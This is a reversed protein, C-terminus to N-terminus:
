VGAIGVRHWALINVYRCNFPTLTQGMLVLIERVEGTELNAQHLWINVVM